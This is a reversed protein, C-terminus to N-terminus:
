IEILHKQQLTRIKAEETTKLLENRVVQAAEQGGRVQIIAEGNKVQRVSSIRDGIKQKDLGTRIKVIEPFDYTGQEIIMACPKIRQRKQKVSNRRDNSNHEQEIQNQSQLKDPAKKRQKRGVVESWTGEETNHQVEPETITRTDM